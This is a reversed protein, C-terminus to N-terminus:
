IGEEKGITRHTWANILDRTISPEPSLSRLCERIGSLAENQTDATVELRFSEYNGLNITGGVTVSQIM